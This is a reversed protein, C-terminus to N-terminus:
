LPRARNWYLGEWEVSQFVSQVHSDNVLSIRATRADGYIQFSYKGTAYIPTGLVLYQDGVTKGTFESLQAPVISETQPDSGYPAVETKFYATETFYVTFTRLMLRGTTVPNEGNMVFQESFTHRATYRFGVYVTGNDHRGEVAVRTSTIWEYRSPDILAQSQAGFASGRVIRLDARRSQAVPYPLDFVTFDGGILGYQPTVPALRDILIQRDLNGTVAGSQVDAVEIYVGDSRQILAFLRSEITDISLVTDGEPLEWYSWASQLKNDGNWFFKYVYIRNPAGDTIAFLVDENTNGALRTVGSPIYRPVHSTVDSADNSIAEEDVFYERVRSWQGSETVFYVDTGVGIPRVRTSMEFETATDISVTRPTLIEDVNLRFQSQDAFLMLGNNFPVAFHLISVKTSSVAVDVVDSDLLDSVTTRWFNGFDGACSFVVNEDSVFGLRNKYYFVDKIYSGVFTPAPNSVADGVQRTKWPFVTFTFTGDGNRVLAHPMTKEQLGLPDSPDHTEIWVGGRRMVWYTSFGNEEFGTIKWVDGEQPPVEDTTRPLENFSQKSGRFTGNAPNYYWYRNPEALTGNGWSTPAYWNALDEPTSQSPTKTQVMKTKNVIFSYDAITVVSFATKASVGAALQLYDKGLPFNVTKQNGDLDYVKLDGDTIVVIYRESVDRNIAHIHAGSLNSTTIRAIHEFPPRKRVGDVVSNYCNVQAECQSPLRLTAPQQSVGNFLASLQRTVLNGM